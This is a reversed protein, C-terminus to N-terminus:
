KHMQGIQHYNIQLSFIPYRKMIKEFFQDSTYAVKIYISKVNLTLMLGLLDNVRWTFKNVNLTIKVNLTAISLWIEEKKRKSGLM